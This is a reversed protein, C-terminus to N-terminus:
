ARPPPDPPPRAWGADLEAVAGPRVRGQVPAWAPTGAPPLTAPGSWPALVLASAPTASGDARFIGEGLAVLLDEFMRSCLDRRGLGGHPDAWAAIQRGGCRVLVIRRGDGGDSCSGPGPESAQEAVARGPGAARAEPVGPAGVVLWLLLGLCCRTLLQLAPLM